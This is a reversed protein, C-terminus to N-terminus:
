FGPPNERKASIEEKMIAFDEGKVALEKKITRAAAM